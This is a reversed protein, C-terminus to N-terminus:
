EPEHNKVVLQWVITKDLNFGLTRRTIRSVWRCDMLASGSRGCNRNILRSVLMERDVRFYWAATASGTALLTGVMTNSRMMLMGPAARVQMRVIRNRSSAPKSAAQDELGRANSKRSRSTHMSKSCPRSAVVSPRTHQQLLM